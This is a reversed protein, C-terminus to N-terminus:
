NYELFAVANPQNITYLRHINEGYKYKLKDISIQIRKTQVRLVYLDYGGSEADRDHLIIYNIKM